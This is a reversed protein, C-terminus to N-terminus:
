KRLDINRYSVRGGDISLIGMLGRDLYSANWYLEDVMEKQSVENGELDHARHVSEHFHGSIAKKIGLREYLKKLDKNGRNEKRIEVPAGVEIYSDIVVLPIVSGNHIPDSGHVKQVGARKMKEQLVEGHEGPLVIFPGDRGDKYRVHCVSFDDMVEGFEAMDVGTEPNDFFGPVHSFVVTKEPNTVLKSLDNMNVIRIQGKETKYFGSKLDPFSGLQYQGGCLFDSGGLFVLDHGNRSIKQNKLANIINQYKGSFYDIVPEFDALREHSGPHVYSEVKSQRLVDIIAGMEDQNSGIDGNFVIAEVGESMLRGVAPVIARPNEHIDSIVGYRTKTM